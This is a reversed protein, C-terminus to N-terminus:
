GQRQFRRKLIVAWQHKRAATTNFQLKNFLNFWLFWIVFSIEPNCRDVPFYITSGPLVTFLWPLCCSVYWLRGTFSGRIHLNRRFIFAIKAQSQQIKKESFHGPMQNQKKKKKQPVPSWTYKSRSLSDCFHGRCGPSDGENCWQSM